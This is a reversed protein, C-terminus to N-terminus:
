SRKRYKELSRKRQFIDQKNKTLVSEIAEKIQDILDVQTPDNNAIAVALLGALQTRISNTFDKKDATYGYEDFLQCRVPDNLIEYSKQVLKMKETDGGRDPHHKQAKRKYASRIESETASRNVGLIKYPNM